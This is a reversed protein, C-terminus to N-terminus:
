TKPRLGEVISYQRKLNWSNYHLLAITDYWIEGDQTGEIESSYTLLHSESGKLGVFSIRFFKLLSVSTM